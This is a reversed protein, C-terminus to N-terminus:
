DRGFCTMWIEHFFDQKEQETLGFVEDVLINRFITGQIREKEPIAKLATYFTASSYKSLDTKHGWWTGSELLNGIEVNGNCRNIYDVITTQVMDRMQDKNKDKRLGFIWNNLSCIHNFEQESIEPCINEEVLSGRLSRPTLVLYYRESDDKFLRYNDKDLFVPREYYPTNLTTETLSDLSHHIGFNTYGIRIVEPIIGLFILDRCAHGIKIIYRNGPVLKTQVKSLYEGMKARIELEEDDNNLIFFSSSPDYYYTGSLFRNTINKCQSILSYLNWIKGKDYVNIYYPISLEPLNPHHVLISTRFKSYEPIELKFLGNELIREELLGSVDIDYYNVLRAALGKKTSRSIGKNNYLMLPFIETGKCFGSDPGIMTFIEKPLEIIGSEYDNM